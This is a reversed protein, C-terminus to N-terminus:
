EAPKRQWWKAILYVVLGSIFTVLCHYFQERRAVWAGAILLLAGGIYVATALHEWWAVPKRAQMERYAIWLTSTAIAGCMTLTLGLYSIVDILSARWLILCSALAQLGIALRPTQSGSFIKPLWGDSSMQSIVRPGTALMALVSTASSLAITIRMVWELSAGGVNRAVGKVFYDRGAEISERTDCMMFLANLILYTATVLVCSLIMSRSVLSSPAEGGIYISANFGTYALAIFFLQVLLIKLFGQEDVRKLYDTAFFSQDLAPQFGDSPSVRMLFMACAIAFIMFGVFKLGVVANNVWAGTRLNVSHFIACAAIWLTALVQSQWISDPSDAIYQGFILGAAAIPVTFGAVISIWGAMCGVAPHVFRSLFVYEGGNLSFRSALASYAIAGCIAHVGAIAWAILVWRADGLAGIAYSTSIYVSSGIMNGIVLCVLSVLGISRKEMSSQV